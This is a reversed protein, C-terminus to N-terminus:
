SIIIQSRLIPLIWLHFYKQYSRHKRLVFIQLSLTLSGSEFKKFHSSFIRESKLLKRAYRYFTRTYRYLRPRVKDFDVRIILRVNTSFMKYPFYPLIIIYWKRFLTAVKHRLISGGYVRIEYWKRDHLQPDKLQKLCHSVCERHTESAGGLSGNCSDRKCEMTSWM